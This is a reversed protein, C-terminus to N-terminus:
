MNFCLVWDGGRIGRAPPRAAPRGNKESFLSAGQFGGHGDAGQLRDGPLSRFSSLLFTTIVCLCPSWIIPGVFFFFM